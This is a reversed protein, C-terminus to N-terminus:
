ARKAKGSKLIYDIESALGAPLPAPRAAEILAITRDRLRESLRRSGKKQWNDLRQRTFSIPQWLDRFHTLTHEETLYQGGPGLRDVLDLAFSPDDLSFGASFHRTREIVEACFVIMEPSTTMGAELYGVDHALHQGSMEAVMISAVADTAAQEDM